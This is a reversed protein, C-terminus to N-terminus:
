FFKGNAALWKELMPQTGIKRCVFSLMRSRQKRHFFHLKWLYIVNSGHSSNVTYICYSAMSSSKFSILIVYM